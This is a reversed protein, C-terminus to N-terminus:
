GVSRDALLGFSNFIQDLFNFGKFSALSVKSEFVDLEMQALYGLPIKDASIEIQGPSLETIINGTYYQRHLTIGLDNVIKM